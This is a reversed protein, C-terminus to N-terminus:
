VYGKWFASMALLVFAIGYFHEPPGWDLGAAAPETSLDSRAARTINFLVPGLASGQPVGSDCAELYARDM